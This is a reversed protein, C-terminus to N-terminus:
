PINSDQLESALLEEKHGATIDEAKPLRHESTRDDESVSFPGLSSLLKSVDTM